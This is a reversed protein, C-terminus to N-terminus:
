LTDNNKDQTKITLALKDHWYRSLAENMRSGWM